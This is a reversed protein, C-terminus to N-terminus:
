LCMMAVSVDDGYVCVEVTFHHRNNKQQITVLDPKGLLEAKQTCSECYICRMADEVTV